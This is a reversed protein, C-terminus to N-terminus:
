ANDSIPARDSQRSSELHNVIYRADYPMAAVTESWLSHQFFQGCFYLGPINEVVGRDHVPKGDDGFVPLDIWEFGPKFGTCWVVNEVEIVRGDEFQPLGEKVGIIRPVRKAGEAKLDRLKVRVVPAAVKLMKPRARRGIPTSTTLVKTAFFRVIKIGIKRGFWNDIRFPIVATPNGSIYTERDRALELGIEAGSNGMGVVLTPGEGLSKPNRYESSHIQIIHDDLDSAFHPVKPTQYNSMAIVVNRAHLVGSTTEVKFLDGEIALRTATTGSMIPLGMKGAYEELFDATEDKSVFHDAAGPFDLGPLEFFGAPTFLLLSDWRQRWADGIRQSADVIVFTRGTQALEYGVTLGTQGGGIVVTDLADETLRTTTSQKPSDDSM